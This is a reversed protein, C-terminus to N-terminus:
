FDFLIAFCPIGFHLSWYRRKRDNWANSCANLANSMSKFMSYIGYITFRSMSTCLLAHLFIIWFHSKTLTYHRHSTAWLSSTVCIEQMETTIMRPRGQSIVKPSAIFGHVRLNKSFRQVSRCSVNVDNRNGKRTKWTSYQSRDNTTQNRPHPLAYDIIDTLQFSLFHDSQSSIDWIM